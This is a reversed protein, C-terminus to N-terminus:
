DNPQNLWPRFSVMSITNFPIVYMNDSSRKRNGAGLKTSNLIELSIRTHSPFSLILNINIAIRIFFQVRLFEYVVWM